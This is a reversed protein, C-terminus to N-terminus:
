RCRRAVARAVARARACVAYVAAMILVAAVIFPLYFFAVAAVLGLVLACDHMRLRRLLRQEHITAVHCTRRCGTAPTGPRGSSVALV